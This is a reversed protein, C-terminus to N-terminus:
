PELSKAPIGVGWMSSIQYEQLNNFVFLAMCQHFKFKSVHELLRRNGFVRKKNWSAGREGVSQNSVIELVWLILEYFNANSWNIKICLLDNHDLRWIQHPLFVMASHRRSKLNYSLSTYLKKVYAVPITSNLNQHFSVADFAKRKKYFFSIHLDLIQLDTAYIYGYIFDPIHFRKTELFGEEIGENFSSIFRLLKKNANWKWEHKEDQYRFLRACYTM